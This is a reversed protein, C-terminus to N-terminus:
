KNKLIIKKKSRTWVIVDGLCLAIGVLCLGPADDIEIKRAAGRTV